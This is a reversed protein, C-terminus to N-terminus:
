SLAIVRSHTALPRWLWLTSTCPLWPSLTPTASRTRPCTPRGWPPHARPLLPWPERAEPPRDPRSNGGRRQPLAGPDAQRDSHRGQATRGKESHVILLMDISVANCDKKLAMTGGREEGARRPRECPQRRQLHGRARRQGARSIALARSLASGQRRAAARRTESVRGFM